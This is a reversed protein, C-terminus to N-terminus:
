VYFHTLLSDVKTAAITDVKSIEFKQREFNDM